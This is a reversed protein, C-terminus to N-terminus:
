QSSSVLIYFPTGNVLIRLTHTATVDSTSQMIKGTNIANGDLALLAAKSDVLALGTPDGSLVARFLSLQTVGAVTSSSGDCSIEAEHAAYTGGAFASNPIQLTNRNAIGEGTVRGSTGFSLSIHAGKANAAAVNSVTTFIRAAEGDAGATSHYLRMYLGRATGTASTNKLYYELFNLDTAAYSAPATSSGAGHLIANTAPTIGLSRSDGFAVRSLNSPKVV